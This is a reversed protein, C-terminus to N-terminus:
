QSEKARYLPELIWEILSRKSLVIDAKLVMGSQLVIKRGFASIDQRDLKVTIRYLPEIASSMDLEAIERPALITQSVGTVIGGQVGYKQIPFADYQLLVRQGVNVHAIARSPIYLHGELESSDPLIVALPKQSDVTLGPYGQISSVKGDIPSAISQLQQLALGSLESRAQALRDLLGGEEDAYTSDLSELKAKLAIYQSETQLAVQRASEKQNKLQLVGDVHQQYEDASVSNDHTLPEIRKSRSAKIKLRETDINSRFAFTELTEETNKLDLKM